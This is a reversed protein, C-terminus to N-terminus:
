IGGWTDYWVFKGDPTGDTNFTATITTEEEDPPVTVWDNTLTINQIAKVTIFGHAGPTTDVLRVYGKAGTIQYYSNSHYSVANGKSDSLGFSGMKGATNVGVYVDLGARIDGAQQASFSTGFPAFVEHAKLSRFWPYPCFIPIEFESRQSVGQTRPMGKAIGDIFYTDCETEFVFRRKTNYPFQRYLERTAYENQADVSLTITRSKVTKGSYVSADTGVLETTYMDAEPRGVGDIERIGYRDIHILNPSGAPIATAGAPISYFGKLM